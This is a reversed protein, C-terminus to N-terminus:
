GSHESASRQAAHSSFCFTGGELVILEGPYFTNWGTKSLPCTAVVFGHNVPLPEEVTKVDVSLGGDEFHRERGEAMRLKRLTLGKWAAVDHYCFLRQGDSMLCNLKGHQNLETLQLHLWRWSDETNLLDDREAIKALLHCFIHESDTGGVPRYVSLSFNQYEPLTGNHAFCFDRGILERAFPHTDSHTPVGGTTQHRVHAIYVRSTLNPYSELFKTHTSQRWEVPEKVIAVSRDPYWALGWGNANEEDRLAFARISFDASIPRDFSIGMLECM